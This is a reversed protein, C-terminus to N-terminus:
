ASGEQRKKKDYRPRIVKGGRVKPTVPALCRLYTSIVRGDENIAPTYEKIIDGKEPRIDEVDSVLKPDTYIPRAMNRSCSWKKKNQRGEVNAVLYGALDSHDGRSDLFEASLGEPWLKRIIDFADAEAVLHHHLRAPSQRHPSFNATVWVMKPNTKHQKKFEYRLRALIKRLNEEADEYSKPLSDGPYKLVIHVDGAGFNCNLVRALERVSSLENAKIKKESSNGAVRPARRSKEEPKSRLAMYSRRTEVVNGSIIKYEVLRKM